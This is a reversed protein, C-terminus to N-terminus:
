PGPLPGPPLWGPNCDSPTLDSNPWAPGVFPNSNDPAPASGGGPCRENGAPPTVYPLANAAPYQPPPGTYAAQYHGTLVNTATNYDFTNVGAPQVRAYHGNGDYYGSVSGLKSFSGILDPAYPRAFAITPQSANLARIGTRSAPAGRKHLPV